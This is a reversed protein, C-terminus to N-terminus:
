PEGKKKKSHNLEIIIKALENLEKAIELKRKEDKIRITKAIEKINRVESPEM